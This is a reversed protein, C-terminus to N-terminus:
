VGRHKIVQAPINVTHEKSLMWIHTQIEMHWISMRWIHFHAMHWHRRLLALHFWLIAVLWWRYGGGGGGRGKRCLSFGQRTSNISKDQMILTVYRVNLIEPPINFWSMNRKTGFM